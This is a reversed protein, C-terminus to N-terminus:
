ELAKKAAQERHTKPDFFEPPRLKALVPELERQVSEPFNLGSLRKLDDARIQNAAEDPGGALDVLRKAARFLHQERLQFAALDQGKAEPYKPSRLQLVGSGAMLIDINNQIEDALSSQPLGTDPTDAM